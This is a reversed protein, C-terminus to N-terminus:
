VMPATESQFRVGPDATGWLTAPSGDDGLPRSSLTVTATVPDIAVPLEALECIMSRGDFRAMVPEAVSGDPTVLVAEIM